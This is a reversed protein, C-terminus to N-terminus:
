PSELEAIRSELKQIVAEKSREKNPIRHIIDDLYNQFARTMSQRRFVFIISCDNKAVIVGSEEKVAFQFEEISDKTHIIFSFREYKKLLTVIHKLHECYDTRSYLISAGGLLDRPNPLITTEPFTEPLSFSVLETFDSHELGALFCSRIKKHTAAIKQKQETTGVAQELLHSFMSEPMTVSSPMPSCIISDGFQEAFEVWLESFKLLSENKFVQMLPYCLEFFADFEKSLNRLIKPDSCYFLQSHEEHTVLSSSTVAAIGPALFMTKRFVSEWYKPYYFSEMAGTMYVPLWWDIVALMETLDRTVTHIIKIRTGQAIIQSLLASWKTAFDKSGILWQMNEDSYLLITGPSKSAAVASLFRIAGEQKGELGDYVDVETPKGPPVAFATDTKPEPKKPKKPFDWITRITQQPEENLWDFLLQTLEQPTEPFQEPALGLLEYLANKQCELKAQAAFYSAMEKVYSNRSSPIRIGTRWRSVLSADVSLAKALRINTVNQINMLMNLKMHFKM